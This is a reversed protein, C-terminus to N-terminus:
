GDSNMSVIRAGLRDGFAVLGVVGVPVGDAQLEIEITEPAVGLDLIQGPDLDQFRDWTMQGGDIVLQMALPPVSPMTEPTEADNQTM